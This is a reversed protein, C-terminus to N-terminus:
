ACFSWEYSPGGPALQMVPQSGFCLTLSFILGKGEINSAPKRYMYPVCNFVIMKLSELTLVFGSIYHTMSENM